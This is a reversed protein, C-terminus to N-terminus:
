LNEANGRIGELGLELPALDGEGGAVLAGALGRVRAGLERGGGLLLLGLEDLGGGLVAAGALDHDLDLEGLLARRLEGLLALELDLDGVRWVAPQRGGLLQLQAGPLLWGRDRPRRCRRDAAMSSSARACRSIAKSVELASPSRRAASNTPPQSSDFSM